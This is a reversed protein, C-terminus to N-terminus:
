SDQNKGLQRLTVYEVATVAPQRHITTPAAHIKQKNQYVTVLPHTSKKLM